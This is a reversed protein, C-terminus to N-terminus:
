SQILGRFLLLLDSSVCERLSPAQHLSEFILCLEKVSIARFIVVKM